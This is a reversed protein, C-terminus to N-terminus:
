LISVNELQRTLPTIVDDTSRSTIEKWSFKTVDVPQTLWAHSIVDDISFRSEVKVELLNKLLDLLESVLSTM